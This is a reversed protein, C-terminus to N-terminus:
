LLFNTGSSADLLVKNLSEKLDHALCLRGSIGGALGLRGGAGCLRRGAGGRLPLLLRQVLLRLSHHRVTKCKAQEHPGNRLLDHARGVHAHAHFGAQIDQYYRVNVTVVPKPHQVTEQVALLVQFASNWVNSFKRPFKLLMVIEWCSDEVLVVKTFDVVEHRTHCTHTQQQAIPRRWGRLENNNSHSQPSGNAAHVVEAAVRERMAILHRREELVALSPAQKWGRPVVLNM